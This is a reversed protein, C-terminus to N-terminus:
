PRLASANAENRKALRALAAQADERTRQSYGPKQALTQLLQEAEPTAMWELAQVARLQRLQETTLATVKELLQELRRRMELSPKGALSRRLASEAAPGLKELEEAAKQREAFEKSDLDAILRAVQEPDPVPAPLLQKQLLLVAEEPADVLTTIVRYAKRPDADGLTTWLPQFDKPITGGMGEGALGWILVVEQGITAIRKSDPSFRVSSARGDPDVFRQWEANTASEWLRITSGACAALTRGDPSYAVSNVEQEEKVLLSSEGSATKWLHLEHGAGIALTKGDPSFALDLVMPRDIGAGARAQWTRVQKGDATDALVVERDASAVAIYKGDPSFAVLPILTKALRLVRQEKGTATEYIPVTGDYSGVALYKGDPSFALNHPAFERRLTARREQPEEAGPHGQWRRIEKGTRADLLRIVNEAMWLGVTQGDPSVALARVGVFGSYKPPYLASCELPKGTTADWVRFDREYGVTVARKGDALFAFHSVGGLHGVAPVVEKGSAVEWLRVASENGSSALTKGDPSFALCFTYPNVTAQAQRVEQGTATDWFRIRCEAGRDWGSTALTKGDPSFAVTQIGNPLPLPKLEKNAALDWRRVLFPQGPGTANKIWALVKQDSSLTVQPGGFGIGVSQTSFEARLAQRRQKGTEVDWWCVGDGHGISILSRGDTDFAIIGVGNAGVPLRRIEKGTATEWLWVDPHDGGAALIKGDPSFALTTIRYPVMKWRHATTTLRRVEQGTDTRWLAVECKQESPHAKFDTTAAAVLKSDPSFAVADGGMLSVKLQAAGTQANWLRVQGSGHNNHGVWSALLRGDPSYTVFTTSGGQRLRVTGLRVLGGPPLPDGYFDTRTVQPVPPEPQDRAEAPGKPAAARRVDAQQVNAGKMAGAQQAVLGAGMALVCLLLVLAAWKIKTLFMARVLGEVLAAVPASVAGAAKGAACLGAARVINAVLQAPAEASAANNALVTALAAVSLTVGQRALRKRLWHKARDLRGSVTGAPCGLERAIQEITKGELYHLVLPARYKEPLRNLASDLVPRLDHWELDNPSESAPPDLSEESVPGAAMRAKARLAARYAVRFLWAGVSQRHRVSGAKRFLVLFTAQFADEAAHLDHLIRRCTGLVMSGHRWVITEFAAEDQQNAFRELLQGDSISDSQPAARRLLRHILPHLPRKAM